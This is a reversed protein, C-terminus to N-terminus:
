GTLGASGAREHLYWQLARLHNGWHTRFGFHFDWLADAEAAHELKWLVERLDLVIDALDDIADGATWEGELELSAARYFGFSPFRATLRAGLETYDGSPAEVETVPEPLESVHAVFALRDLALVLTHEDAAAGNEGEAIELFGSRRSSEM